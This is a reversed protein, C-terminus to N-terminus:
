TVFINANLPPPPANPIHGQIGYVSKTVHLSCFITIFAAARSSVLNELTQIIIIWCYFQSLYPGSLHINWEMGGERSGMWKDDLSIRIVQIPSAYNKDTLMCSYERSKMTTQPDALGYWIASTRTIYALSATPNLSLTAFIPPQWCSLQILTIDSAM